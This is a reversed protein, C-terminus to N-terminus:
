GLRLRLTALILSQNRDRAEIGTHIERHLNVIRGLKASRVTEPGLPHASVMSAQTGGFYLPLRIYPCGSSRSALAVGEVSRGTNNM